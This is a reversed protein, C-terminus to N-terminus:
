DEARAFAQAIARGVVEAAVGAVYRGVREAQMPTILPHDWDWQPFSLWEDLLPTDGPEGRLAECVANHLEGVDLTKAAACYRAWAREDAEAQHDIDSPQLRAVEASNQRPRLTSDFANSM